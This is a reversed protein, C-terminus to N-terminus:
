IGAVVKKNYQVDGLGRAGAWGRKPAPCRRNMPLVPIGSGQPYLAMVVPAGYHRPSAGPADRTKPGKFLFVIDIKFKPVRNQNCKKEDNGTRTPPSLPVIGMFYSAHSFEKERSIFNM